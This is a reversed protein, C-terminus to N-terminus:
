PRQGRQDFADFGAFRSVYPEYAAPGNAPSRRVRWYTEYDVWQYARQSQRTPVFRSNVVLCEDGSTRTIHRLVWGREDQRFTLTSTDRVLEGYLVVSGEFSPHDEERSFDVVKGTFCLWGQQAQFAGLAAILKQHEDAGFHIAEGVTVSAVQLRSLEEMDFLTNASAALQNANM